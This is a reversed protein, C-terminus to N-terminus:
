QKNRMNNQKEESKCGFRKELLSSTMQVISSLSLGSLLGKNEKIEVLADLINDRQLEPYLDELKKVVKRFSRLNLANPPIFTASPNPVFQVSGLPLLGGAIDEQDIELHTDESSLKSSKLDPKPVKYPASACLSVKSSDLLPQPDSASPLPLKLPSKSIDPGESSIAPMKCTASASTPANFTVNCNNRNEMNKGCTYRPGKNGYEPKVYSQYDPLGNEKATKVLQLKVAKGKIEKENMEKVALKADSATKFSLFAYRNASYECISIESVNYKQFHLWLEVESVLPGLDAVHVSYINKLEKETDKITQTESTGSPKLQDTLPLSSDTVTLNETADFWGESIEQISSSSNEMIENKKEESTRNSLSLDPGTNESDKKQCMVLPPSSVEMNQPLSVRSVSKGTGLTSGNVSKKKDMSNIYTQWCHQQYMQYRIKLLQVEAKIARELMEKCCSPLHNNIEQSLQMIRNPIENLDRSTSNKWELLDEMKSKFGHKAKDSTICTELMDDMAAQATTTEVNDSICSWDTNCAVSRVSDMLWQKPREKNMMTIVTNQGRSVVSAKVNTARSTTFCARFDSSADVAQNITSQNNCAKCRGCHCYSKCTCNAQKSDVVVEYGSSDSIETDGSSTHAHSCKREQQLVHTNGTKLARGSLYDTKMNKDIKSNSGSFLKPNNVKASVSQKNVTSSLLRITEDGPQDDFNLGEGQTDCKSDQSTQPFEPIKSFKYCDCDISCGSTPSEEKQKNMPCQADALQNENSLEKDQFAEPQHGIYDQLGICDLTSDDLGRCKYEENQNNSLYSFDAATDLNMDTESVNPLAISMEGGEKHASELKEDALASFYPLSGKSANLESASVYCSQSSSSCNALKLCFDSIDNVTNKESHESGPLASLGTSNYSNNEVESERQEMDGVDSHDGSAVFKLMAESLRSKESGDSPLHHSKIAKEGSFSHSNNPKELVQIGWANMEATAYRYYSNELQGYKFSVSTSSPVVLHPYSADVAVPMPVYVRPHFWFPAVSYPVQGYLSCDRPVCPRTGFLPQIYAKENFPSQWSM